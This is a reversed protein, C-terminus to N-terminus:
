YYLEFSNIVDPLLNLVYNTDPFVSNKYIVSIQLPFSSYFHGFLATTDFNPKTANIAYKCSIHSFPMQWYSGICITATDNKDTLVKKVTLQLQASHRLILDIQFTNDIQNTSALGTHDFLYGEKHCYIYYSGPIKDRIDKDEDYTFSYNGEQDTTTKLTGNAMFVAPYDFHFGLYINVGEVPLATIQDTVKGKFTYRIFNEEMLNDNSKDCASLLFLACFLMLPFLKKGAERCFSTKM